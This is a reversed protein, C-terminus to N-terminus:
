GVIVPDALVMPETGAYVDSNEYASTELALAAENAAELDAGTLMNHATMELTEGEPDNGKFGVQVDGIGPAYYKVQIFAQEDLGFEDVIGPERRDHGWWLSRGAPGSGCSGDGLAEGPKGGGQRRGSGVALGRETDRRGGAIHEFIGKIEEPVRRTTDNDSTLTTIALQESATFVRM